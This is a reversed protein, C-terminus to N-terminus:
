QDSGSNSGPRSQQTTSASPVTSIPAESENVLDRWYSDLAVVAEFYEERLEADRIGRLDLWAVIDQIQIACPGYGNSQRQRSLEVFARWLYRNQPEVVPKKKLAEPMEGTEEYVQWLV